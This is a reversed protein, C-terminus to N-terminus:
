NIWDKLQNHHRVYPYCYACLGHALHRYETSHCRRCENYLKSWSTITFHNKNHGSTSLIQLNDISNNLGNGDKHHVLEKASLSRGLHKGMIFRHEYAWINPDAIKIFWYQRGRCIHIRKSGIPRYRPNNQGKTKQSTRFSWLEKNQYKGECQKCRRPYYFAKRDQRRKGYIPAGCLPCPKFDLKKM